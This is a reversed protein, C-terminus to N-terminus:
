SVPIIYYMRSSVRHDKVIMMKHEEYKALYGDDTMEALHKAEGGDCFVVTSEGALLRGKNADCTPILIKERFIDSLLKKDKKRNYIVVLPAIDKFSGAYPSLELILPKGEPVDGPIGILPALKEGNGFFGMIIPYGQKMTENIQLPPVKTHRQHRAAMVKRTNAYTKMLSEDFNVAAVSRIYYEGETYTESLMEDAVMAKVEAGVDTDWQYTRTPERKVGCIEAIARHAIHTTLFTRYDRETDDRKKTNCKADERVRLNSMGRYKGKTATTKPPGRWTRQEKQAKNFFYISLENDLDTPAYRINSNTCLDGLKVVDEKDGFGPNGGKRNHKRGLRVNNKCNRLATVSWHTEAALKETCPRDKFLRNEDRFLDSVKDVEWANPHTTYAARSPAKNPKRCKKKVPPPPSIFSQRKKRTTMNHASNTLPCVINAIDGLPVAANKRKKLRPMPTAGLEQRLRWRQDPFSHELDIHMSLQEKTVSVYTCKPCPWHRTQPTKHADPEPTKSTSEPTQPPSTHVTTFHEIFAADSQFTFDCESLVCSKPPTNNEM